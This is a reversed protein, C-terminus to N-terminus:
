AGGAGLGYGPADIALGDVILDEYGPPLSIQTV